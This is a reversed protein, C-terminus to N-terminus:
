RVDRAFLEAPLDCDSWGERRMAARVATQIQPPTMRVYERAKALLDPDKISRLYRIASDRDYNGPLGTWIVADVNGLKMLWKRVVSVSTSDSPHGSGGRDVFQIDEQHCKKGERERLDEIADPLTKCTSTAWYTRQKKRRPHIVLTLRGDESKRAFEIPLMPGDLHWGPEIRLTRPCWILSGWGIVAINM